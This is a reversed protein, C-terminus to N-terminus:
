KYYFAPAIFAHATEKVFHDLVVERTM